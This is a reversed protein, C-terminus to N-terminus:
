HLHRQSEDEILLYGDDTFNDPDLLISPPAMCLNELEQAIPTEAPKINIIVGVLVKYVFDPDAPREHLYELYAYTARAWIAIEQVPVLDREFGGQWEQFNRCHDLHQKLHRWIWRVVPVFDSDLPRPPLLAINAKTRKQRQAACLIAGNPQGEERYESPVQDPNVEAGDPLIGNPVIQPASSKSELYIEMEAIRQEEDLTDWREAAIGLRTRVRIEEADTVDYLNLRRYEVERTKWDITPPIMSRDDTDVFEKQLVKAMLDLYERIQFSEDM